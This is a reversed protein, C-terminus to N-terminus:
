FIGEVIMINSMPGLLDETELCLRMSPFEAGGFGKKVPCKPKAYDERL